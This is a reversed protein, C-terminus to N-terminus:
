EGPWFRVRVRGQVAATTTCARGGLKGRSNTAAHHTYSQKWDARSQRAAFLTPKTRTASITYVANEPSQADARCSSVVALQQQRAGDTCRTFSPSMTFTAHGVQTRSKRSFRQYAYFLPDPRKQVHWGNSVPQQAKTRPHRALTSLLAPDSKSSYRPRRPSYETSSAPSCHSQSKSSKSVQM